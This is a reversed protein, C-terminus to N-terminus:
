MAAAKREIVSAVILLVLNLSLVLYVMKPLSALSDLEM